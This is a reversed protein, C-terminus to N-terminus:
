CKKKWSYDYYCKEKYDYSYDCDEKYSYDCDEKYSYDCDEKYSYDCEEKYGCGYGGGFIQNTAIKELENLFSDTGALSKSSATTLDSIIICTM